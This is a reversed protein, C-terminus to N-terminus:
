GCKASIEKLMRRMNRHQLMRFLLYLLLSVAFLLPFNINYATKSFVYDWLNEYLIESADFSKRYKFLNLLVQVGMFIGDALLICVFSDKRDKRRIEKKMEGLSMGLMHFQYMRNWILKQKGNRGKRERLLSLFFVSETLFVSLVLYIICKTVM